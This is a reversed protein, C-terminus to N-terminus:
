YRPKFLTLLELCGSPDHEFNEAVTRTNMFQSFGPTAQVAPDSLDRFGMSWDAFLREETDGETIVFTSSHRPDALITRYLAQVTSREGEILQIFDGDRYLLLGTVGLRQNNERAKTLLALLDPKSFLRTAASAYVIHHIPPMTM